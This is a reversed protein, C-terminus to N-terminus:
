LGYAIRSFLAEITTIGGRYVSGGTAGSVRRLLEYDADEGYALCFVRTGSERSRKAAALVEEESVTSSNDMGDTLVVVARLSGEWRETATIAELIANLLATRGSSRLLAIEQGIKDGTSVFLDLPVVWEATDSFSSLGVADGRAAILHGLFASTGVKAGELKVGEMSGSVDIVLCVAVPRQLSAIEHSARRAMLANKAIVTESPITTIMGSESLSAKARSSSLFERLRGFAQRMHIGPNLLFAEHELWLNDGKTAVITPRLSPAVNSFASLVSHRQAVLVDVRWHHGDFARELAETDTASYHIVKNELSGVLWRFPLVSTSSDRLFAQQIGLDVLSGLPTGSRPRIWSFEPIRV